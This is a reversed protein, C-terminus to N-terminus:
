KPMHSESIICYLWPRFCEQYAPNLQRGFVERPAKEGTSCEAESRIVPPSYGIAKLRCRHALAGTPTSVGGVGSECATSGVRSTSLYVGISVSGTLVLTTPSEGAVFLYICICIVDGTSLSLFFLPLRCKPLSGVVGIPPFFYTCYYLYRLSRFCRRVVIRCPM